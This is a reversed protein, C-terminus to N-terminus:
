TTSGRIGEAEGMASLTYLFAGELAEHALGALSSKLMGFVGLFVEFDVRLDM